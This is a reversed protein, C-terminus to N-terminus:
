RDLLSIFLNKLDKDDFKDSELKELPTFSPSLDINESQDIQSIRCEIYFIAERLTDEPVNYQPALYKLSKIRDELYLISDEDQIRSYNEQFEELVACHLASAVRNPIKNFWSDYKDAIGFLEDSPIMPIAGAVAEEIIDILETKYIFQRGYSKDRLRSILEVLNTCDSSSDIYEPPNRAIRLISDAFSQNDTLQWWDMLMLICESIEADNYGWSAPNGPAGQWAPREEIMKLLGVCADVVKRQEPEKFGQQDVFQWLRLIWDVTTATPALQALLEADRLYSSLYDRLSPNVFSVRQNNINVFSGELIRLAEEFDKPGRPRGYATSMAEHLSRYATHLSGPSVGYEACFFMTLLLHQCRHDIHEQFAVKWIQQPNNLTNLFCFAYNHSKIERLYRPGTM